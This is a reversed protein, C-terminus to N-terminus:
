LEWNGTFTDGSESLSNEYLSVGGAGVGTTTWTETYVGGLVDDYFTVTMGVMDEGTTLDNIEPIDQTSGSDFSLIVEAHSHTTFTFLCFLTILWTMTLLKGM